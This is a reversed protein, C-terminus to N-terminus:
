KRQMANKACSATNKLTLQSVNGVTYNCPFPLLVLMASQWYFVMFIKFNSKNRASYNALTIKEL